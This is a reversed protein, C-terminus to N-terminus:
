LRRPRSPWTHGQWQAYDQDCEDLITKFFPALLPQQASNWQDVTSQWRVFDQFCRTRRPPDTFWQTKQGIFVADRVMALGAVLTIPLSLELTDRAFDIYHALSAQFQFPLAPWPIQFIRNPKVHAPEILSRNLGWIEGTRFVQTLEMAVNPLEDGDFGLAVVGYGNSELQQRSGEGFARLPNSARGVLQRLETRAFNKSHAPILRLWVSPSHHWYVHESERGEEDRAKTRAVSGNSNTIFSCSDLPAAAHALPDEKPSLGLKNVIARLHATLAGVLSLLAGDREEPSASPALKFRIPFQRHVLDFPLNEPLGYHDNFVSVIRGFGVASAAYGLEISVNANPLYKWKDRVEIKAVFTLDAVVISAAEIKRLITEAIAPMGSEGQVDRDFELLADSEQIELDANLHAIAAQLAKAIFHHNVSEETDSQWAYFVTRSM